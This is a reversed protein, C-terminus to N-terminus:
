EEEGLARRVDEETYGFANLKKLLQKGNSHGIHLRRGLLDRRRRADPGIILGLEILVTKDITEQAESLPSSVHMLAERITEFDTHEVGIKGRRNKAKDRDIFAHKVGPVAERITTRIKDGPFDPDTLVIVGRTEQAQRIVDLTQSDIASGNTEITDCDVARKVRETDDRGEVVVFENIKM